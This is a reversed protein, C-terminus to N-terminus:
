TIKEKMFYIKFKLWILTIHFPEDSAFRLIKTSDRLPHLEHQFALESICPRHPLLLPPDLERSTSFIASIWFICLYDPFVEQVQVVPIHVYM